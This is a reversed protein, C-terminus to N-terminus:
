GNELHGRTCIQPGLSAIASLHVCPDALFLVFKFCRAVSIMSSPHCSVLEERPTLHSEATKLVQRRHKM